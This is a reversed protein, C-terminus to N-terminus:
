CFMYANLLAAPKDMPLLVTTKSFYQFKLLFHLRKQMTDCFVVVFVVFGM